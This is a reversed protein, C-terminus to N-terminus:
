IGITKLPQNSRRSQLSLGCSGVPKLVAYPKNLLQRIISSMTSQIHIPTDYDTALMKELLQCALITEGFM